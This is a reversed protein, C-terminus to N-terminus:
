FVFYVGSVAMKEVNLEHDFCLKISIDCIAFDFVCLDM